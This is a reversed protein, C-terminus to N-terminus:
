CVRNRALRKKIYDIPNGMRGLNLLFAIALQYPLLGLYFILKFPNPSINAPPYSLYSMVSSTLEQCIFTETQSLDSKWREAVAKQIGKRGEYSKTASLEVGVDLMDDRFEVELFTCLDRIYKEPSEVFDEFRVTIIKDRPLIKSSQLGATVAKKWIVSTTVPHYNLFTRLIEFRPQKWRIGAKWKRKQSLLVARPDRIMHIFKAHPFMRHLEAVYFVHRPTQDGVLKRGHKKAEYDFFAGILKGFSNGNSSMFSFFIKDTEEPYEEYRSKRYYDKEQILILRNIVERIKKESLKEFHEREYIFEEMFHTENLVCVDPHRKLVRAVLTTGSRSNGIIFFHGAM